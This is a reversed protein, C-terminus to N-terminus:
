NQWVMRMSITADDLYNIVSGTIRQSLYAYNAFDITYFVVFLAILLGWIWFSIKKGWKKELPHLVPISGILFLLLCAISVMRLDYRLGLLFVSTFPTSHASPIKFTLVLALRLLSMLLLFIIGTLGIWQIYRPIKLRKM